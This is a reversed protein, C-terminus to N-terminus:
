RDSDYPAGFLINNQVTASQIWPTQIMTTWKLTVSSTMRSTYRKKDFDKLKGLEHFFKSYLDLRELHLSDHGM